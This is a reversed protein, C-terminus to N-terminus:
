VQSAVQGALRLLGLITKGDVIEGRDIMALAESRQVRRLGAIEDPDIATETLSLDTALFLSHQEDTFGPSTYYTALLRMQAATYGTEERLERHAAAEATEGADILGAPLEVLTRGVPDRYQEVMLLEDTDAFYAIVVVAPVHEVVERAAIKGSPLLVQDVRLHVIKGDFIRETSVINRTAEAEPDSAFNVAQPKLVTQAPVKTSTTVSKATTSPILMMDYIWMHAQFIIVAFAVLVILLIPSMITAKLNWGLLFLGGAFVAADLLAILMASYHFVSGRRHTPPISHPKWLFARNLGDADFDRSNYLFFEKIYNMEMVSGAWAKRLAILQLLILGGILVVLWLLPVAAISLRPNAGILSIVGTGVGGVILLYFNVITMRHEMAQDTSRGAYELEEKLIETADLGPDSTLGREANLNLVRQQKPLPDPRYPSSWGIALGLGTFLALFLGGIALTTVSEESGVLPAVAGSVAPILAVGSVLVVGAGSVVMAIRAPIPSPASAM